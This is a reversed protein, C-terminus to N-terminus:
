CLAATPLALSCAATSRLRRLSVMLMALVLRM